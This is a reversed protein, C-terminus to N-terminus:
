KMGCLAPASAQRTQHPNSTTGAAGDVTHAVTESIWVRHPTVTSTHLPDGPVHLISLQPGTVLRGHDEFECSLPISSPVIAPTSVRWLITVCGGPSCDVVMQM